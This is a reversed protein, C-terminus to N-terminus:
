DTLLYCLRSLLRQFLDIFVYRKGRRIYGHNYYQNDGEWVIPKSWNDGYLYKLYDEAREPIRVFLNNKLKFKKSKKCIEYPIRYKSRYFYNRKFVGQSIAGISVKTNEIILSISPHFLNSGLKYAYNNELAFDIIKKYKKRYSYNLIDIDIDDDWDILKGDRYIGLLTGGSIFYDFGNSNLLGLIQSFAEEKNNSVSDDININTSNNSTIRLIFNTLEILFTKIIKSIKM